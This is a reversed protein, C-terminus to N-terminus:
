ILYRWVIIKYKFFDLFIFKKFFLIETDWAVLKWEIKTDRVVLKIPLQRQNMRFLFPRFRNINPQILKPNLVTLFILICNNLFNPLTFQPIAYHHIKVQTPHEKFHRHLWFVSPGCSIPHTKSPRYDNSNGHRTKACLIYVRFTM